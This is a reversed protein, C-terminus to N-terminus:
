ARTFQQWNLAHKWRQRKTKLRWYKQGGGTPRRASVRGRNVSNPRRMPQVSFGRRKPTFKIASYRPIVESLSPTAIITSSSVQWTSKWKTLLHTFHPFPSVVPLSLFHLLLRAHWIWSLKNRSLLETWNLENQNSWGPISCRWYMFTKMCTRPGMLPPHHHTLLSSPLPHWSNQLTLSSTHVWVSVAVVTV